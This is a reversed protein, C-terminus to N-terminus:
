KKYWHDGYKRKLYFDNNEDDIAILYGKQELIKIMKDFMMEQGLKHGILFSLLTVAISFLPIAISNTMIFQAVVLSIVIILSVIFNMSNDSCDSFM